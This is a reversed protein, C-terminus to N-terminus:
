RTVVAILPASYTKGSIRCEQPFLRSDESSLSNDSKYPVRFNNNKFSNKTFM